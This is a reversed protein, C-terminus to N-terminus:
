QAVSSFYNKLWYEQQSQPLKRTEYFQKIVTNKSALGYSPNTSPRQFPLPGFSWSAEPIVSLKLTIIDLFGDEISLAKCGNREKTGITM